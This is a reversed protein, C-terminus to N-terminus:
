GRPRAYRSRSPLALWVSAALALLTYRSTAPSGISSFPPLGPYRFHSYMRNLVTTQALRLPPPGGLLQIVDIKGSTLPHIGLHVGVSQKGIDRDSGARNCLWRAVRGGMPTVALFVAKRRSRSMKDDGRGNRQDEVSPELIGAGLYSVCDATQLFFSVTPDQSM